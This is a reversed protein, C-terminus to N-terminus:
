CPVAVFAWGRAIGKTIIGDLYVWARTTGGPSLARLRNGRTELDQVHLDAAADAIGSSTAARRYQVSSSRKKNAEVIEADLLVGHLQWAEDDTAPRTADQLDHLRHGVRHPRAGGRQVPDEDGRAAVRVREGEHGVAVGVLIDRKVIRRCILRDFQV